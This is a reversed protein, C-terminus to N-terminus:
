RLSQLAHPSPTASPEAVEIHFANERPFQQKTYNMSSQQLSLQKSGGIQLTELAPNSKGLYEAADTSHM